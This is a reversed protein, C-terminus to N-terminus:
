FDTCQQLQAAQAKDRVHDRSNVHVEHISPVGCLADRCRSCTKSVHRCGGACWAAQDSCPLAFAFAGARACVGGARVGLRELGKGGQQVQVGHLAQHGLVLLGLLGCEGGDGVMTRSPIHPRGTTHTAGQDCHPHLWQTLGRAAVQQQALRGNRCSYSTENAVLGSFGPLCLM